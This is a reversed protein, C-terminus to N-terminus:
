FTSTYKGLTYKERNKYRDIAIKLGEAQKKTLEM